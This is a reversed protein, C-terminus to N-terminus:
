NFNVILAMVDFFTNVVNHTSFFKCSSFLITDSLKKSKRCKQKWYYFFLMEDCRCTNFLHDTEHM